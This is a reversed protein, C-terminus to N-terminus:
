GGGEGVCEHRWSLSVVCVGNLRMINAPKVDCHVFGKSHMFALGSAIERSSSLIEGMTLRQGGLRCNRRLLFPFFPPTRILDALPSADGPDGM